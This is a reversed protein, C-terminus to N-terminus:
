KFLILFIKLSPYKQFFSRGGSFRSSAPLGRPIVKTVIDSFNSCFFDGVVGSAQTSYGGCGLYKILSRMLAEDRIHQTILLNLNVQFGTFLRSKKQNWGHFMGLPTAGGGAV